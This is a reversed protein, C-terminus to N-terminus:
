QINKLLMPERRHKKKNQVQKADCITVRGIEEFYYKYKQEM